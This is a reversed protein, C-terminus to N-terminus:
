KSKQSRNPNKNQESDEQIKNIQSKNIQEEESAKFLQQRNQNREKLLRSTENQSQNQNEYNSINPDDEINPFPQREQDDSFGNVNTTFAGRMYDKINDVEEPFVKDPFFGFMESPNSPSM